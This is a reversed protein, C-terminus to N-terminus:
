KKKFGKMFLALFGLKEKNTREIRDIETSDLWFGGCKGCVDLIITAENKYPEKKLVEKCRPCKGEKENLEQDMAKGLSPSDIITIKESVYKDLEGKDFWVGGCVFCQDVELTQSLVAGQLEKIESTEHMSIEKKQLRGICKPCDM